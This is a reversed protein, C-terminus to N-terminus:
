VTRYRNELELFIEEEQLLTVFFIWKGVVHEQMTLLTKIQLLKLIKQSFLLLGLM